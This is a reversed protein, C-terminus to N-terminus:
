SWVDGGDAGEGVVAEPDGRSVCDQLWPSVSSVAKSDWGHGESMEWKLHIIGAPPGEGSGWPEEELDNMQHPQLPKRLSTPQHDVASLWLNLLSILAISTKLHPAHDRVLPLTIPSAPVSRRYTREPDSPASPAPVSEAPGCLRGSAAEASRWDSRGGDRGEAWTNKILDTQLRQEETSWHQREDVDKGLVTRLCM